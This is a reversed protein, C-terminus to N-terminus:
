ELEGRNSAKGGGTGGNGLSAAERIAGENDASSSTNEAGDLLGLSSFGSGAMMGLSWRESMSRESSWDTTITVAGEDRGRERQEREPAVGGVGRTAVGPDVEFGGM